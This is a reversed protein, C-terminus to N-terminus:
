FFTVMHLFKNYKEIEEIHTRYKNQVKNIIEKFM